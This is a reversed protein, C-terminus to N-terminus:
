CSQRVMKHARACIIWLKEIFDKANGHSKKVCFLHKWHETIM